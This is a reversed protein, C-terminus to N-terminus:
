PADLAPCTDGRTIKWGDIGSAVYHDRRAGKLQEYDYGIREFPVASLHLCDEDDWRDIRWDALSPLATDIHVPAVSHPYIDYVAFGEFGGWGAESWQITSFRRGGPSFVPRAGTDIETGTGAPDILVYGWAEYGSWDFGFFRDSIREFNEGSYYWGLDVCLTTGSQTAIALWNQSNAAKDAWDPPIAFAEARQVEVDPENLLADCYAISPANDPHASAPIAAAGAIAITLGGAIRRTKAGVM